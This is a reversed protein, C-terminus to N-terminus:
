AAARAASALWTGVASELAELEEEGARCHVVFRGGDVRVVFPRFDRLAGVLSIADRRSALEFRHRDDLTMAEVHTPLSPV